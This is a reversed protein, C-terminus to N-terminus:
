NIQQKSEYHKNKQLTLIFSTSYATREVGALEKRAM